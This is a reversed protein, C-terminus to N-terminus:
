ATCEPWTVAQVAEDRYKTAPVDPGTPDDPATPFSLRYLGMQRLFWADVANNDHAECGLKAATHVMLDKSANGKGAAFKKLTAPPVVVYPVLRDWLHYRIHGGLEGMQHAQNGSGYSYGELVVLTEDAVTVYSWILEWLHRLRTMGTGLPEIKLASDAVALGTGTLSLDLGIVDM